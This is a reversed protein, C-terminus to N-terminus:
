GKKITTKITAVIEATCFPCADLLKVPDYLSPGRTKPSRTHSILEQITTKTTVTLRQASDLKIGVSLFFDHYKFEKESKQGLRVWSWPIGYAEALILGHLSASSILKCTNIADVFGKANPTRIDVLRVKLSTNTPGHHIAQDIILFRSSIDQTSINFWWEFREQLFDDMHPIICLDIAPDPEISPRPDYIFPFLLAPDGYVEPVNCGHQLFM